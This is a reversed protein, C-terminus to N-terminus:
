DNVPFYEHVVSNPFAEKKFGPKFLFSGKYKLSLRYFDTGIVRAEHFIGLLKCYEDWVIEADIFLHFHGPSISPVLRTPVCFLFQPDLLMCDCVGCHGNSRANGTLELYSLQSIWGLDKLFDLLRYYIRRPIEKSFTLEWERRDITRKIRAAFDLDIAPAHIEVPKQGPAQTFRCYSGILAAEKESVMGLEQVDPSYPGGGYAVQNWFKRHPEQTISAQSM